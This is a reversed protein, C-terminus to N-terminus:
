GRNFSISRFRYLVCLAFAHDDADVHPEAGHGTVLEFSGGNGM